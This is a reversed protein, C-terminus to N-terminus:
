DKRQCLKVGPRTTVLNKKINAQIGDWIIEENGFSELLEELAFDLEKYLDGIAKKAANTLLSMLIKVKDVERVQDAEITDKFEKVFKFINEDNAGSFAKPYVLNEKM